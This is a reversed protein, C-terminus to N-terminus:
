RMNKFIIINLENVVNGVIYVIVFIEIFKIVIIFKIM